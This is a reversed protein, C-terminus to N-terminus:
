CSVKGTGCVRPSSKCITGGSGDESFRDRTCRRHGSFGPINLDPPVRSQKLNYPGAQGFYYAASVLTYIGSNTVVYSLQNTRTNLNGTFVEKALNGSPDYLRLWPTFGTTGIRFVNSDGTTGYFRWVDLDGVSNTGNYTFGNVM